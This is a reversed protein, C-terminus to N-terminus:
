TKVCYITTCTYYTPVCFKNLQVACLLINHVFDCCFSSSSDTDNRSSSSLSSPRVPVRINYDRSICTNESAAIVIYYYYYNYYYLLVIVIIIIITTIHDHTFIYIHIHLWSAFARLAGAVSANVLPTILIWKPRHSSLPCGRYLTCIYIYIYLTSHLQACVIQIKMNEEYITGERYGRVCVCITDTPTYM